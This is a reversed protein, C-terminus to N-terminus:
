WPVEDSVFKRWASRNSRQMSALTQEEPTSEITPENIVILALGGM